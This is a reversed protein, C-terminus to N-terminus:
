KNMDYDMENSHKRRGRFELYIECHFTLVSASVMEGFVNWLVMVLCCPGEGRGVAPGGSQSVQVAHRQLAPLPAAAAQHPPRAALAHAARHLRVGGRVPHLAAPPPLHAPPDDGPGPQLGPRQPEEPVVARRSASGPCVYVRM